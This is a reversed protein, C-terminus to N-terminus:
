RVVIDNLSGTDQVTVREYLKRPFYLTNNSGTIKLIVQQVNPVFITSDSNNGAVLIDSTNSNTLGLEFRIDNLSGSVKIVVSKNPLEAAHTTQIIETPATIVIDPCKLEQSNLLRLDFDRHFRYPVMLEKNKLLVRVTGVEWIEQIQIDHIVRTKEKASLSISKAITSQGGYIAGFHTALASGVEAGIGIPELSLDAHLEIGAGAEISYLITQSIEEQNTVPTNGGCNNQEITKVEKTVLAPKNDPL